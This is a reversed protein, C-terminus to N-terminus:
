PIGAMSVVMNTVDFKIRSSSNLFPLAASEVGPSWITILKVWQKLKELVSECSGKYTISEKLTLSVVSGDLVACKGATIGNLPLKSAM